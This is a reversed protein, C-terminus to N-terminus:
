KKKRLFLAATVVAGAAGIYKLGKASKQLWYQSFSEMDQILEAIEEYIFRREMPSLNKQKLNEKLQSIKDCNSKKGKESIKTSLENIMNLYSLIQGAFRISDSRKILLSIYNELELDRLEGLQHVVEVIEDSYGELSIERTDMRGM